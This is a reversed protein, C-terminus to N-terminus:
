ERILPLFTKTLRVVGYLNTDITREFKDMDSLEVPLSYAIGANNVIGVLPLDLKSVEELARDIDEQKTVDLQLPLLNQIGKSRIKEFDAEKRVGAMVTFGEKALTEAIDEGIGTSAGSVIVIGGEHVPFAVRSIKNVYVSVALVILALILTFSAM